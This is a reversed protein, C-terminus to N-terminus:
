LSCGKRPSVTPSIASFLRILLALSLFTVLLEPVVAKLSGNLSESSSHACDHGFMRFSECWWTPCCRGESM